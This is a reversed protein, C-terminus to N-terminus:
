SLFRSTKAYFAEFVPGTPEPPGRAGFDAQEVSYSPLDVDYSLLAVVIQIKAGMAALDDPRPVVGQWTKCSKHCVPTSDDSEAVVLTGAEPFAGGEILAELTGAYSAGAQAGAYATAIKACPMALLAFALLAIVFRNKM